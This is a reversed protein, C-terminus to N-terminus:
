AMCRIAPTMVARRGFLTYRECFGNPHLSFRDDSGESILSSSSLIIAIQTDRKGGIAKYNLLCLATAVANVVAQIVTRAAVPERRWL